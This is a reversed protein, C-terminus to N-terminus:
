GLPRLHMAVWGLDPFVYVAAAAYPNATTPYGTVNNGNFEIEDQQGFLPIYPLDHAYIQEIQAFDDKKSLENPSSAIDALLADVTPNDYRGYNGVSDNQGIPPAVKSSLAEYYYYYPSPTLGASDMLMQFQGTSRDAVWAAQSQADITLNIGAPALEQKIIQLDSVYDTYGAIVGCTIDVPTAIGAQTLIAKAAASSPASFPKVAPGAVSGFAPEVLGATNTAPAYGNYVTNSLYSRDLAASIAQRVALQATPGTRLNPELFGTALAINSVAYGKNRGLYAKQIDPIFNGGWDVEGSELAADSSTNSTFALFRVTKFHPMGPLYYHPNATLQLTENSTKSVLYAGTGVPTPDLWTAKDSVSQWIHRPLIYTKGLASYADSYAATSFNITVGYTGNTTVDSLPLANQNLATDHLALDFTFAVDASTFPQGDSWVVGHRLQVTLTRGGNSWAFSTGLWPEVAGAKATDYFFLPEYVMGKAADEANPSYPNYNAVFTGSQGTSITLVSDAGGGGSDASGGCGAVTGVLAVTACVALSRRRWKRDPM